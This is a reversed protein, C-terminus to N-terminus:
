SAERPDGARQRGAIGRSRYEPQGTAFVPGNKGPPSLECRHGDEWEQLSGDHESVLQSQGCDACASRIMLRSESRELTHTFAAPSSM